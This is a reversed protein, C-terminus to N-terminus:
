VVTEYKSMSSSSGVRFVRQLLSAKSGNARRYSLAIDDCGESSGMSSRSPTFNRRDLEADWGYMDQIPSAYRFSESDLTTPCSMDESSHVPSPLYNSVDSLPTSCFMMSEQDSDSTPISTPQLSAMPESTKPIRRRMRINKQVLTTKGCNRASEPRAATGDRSGGDQRLDPNRNWGLDTVRGGPSTTFGWESIPPTTPPTMPEMGPPSNCDSDDTMSDSEIHHISNMSRVPAGMRGNSNSSRRSGRAHEDSPGDLQMPAVSQLFPVLLSDNMLEYLIRGTESLQSPHPPAPGCPLNLLEDRIRAPINVERPACPIIYVQMLKEWLACVRDHDEQTPNPNDTIMENFIATYRQSDLTFELSEMCHNNSLYAMFATLSWPPSAADLLIETLTPPRSGLAGNPTSTGSMFAESMPRSPASDIEFFDEFASSPQPSPPPLTPSLCEPSQRRSRSLGMM